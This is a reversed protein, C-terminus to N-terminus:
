EGLMSLTKEVARLIGEPTIGSHKKVTNRWLMELSERLSATEALKKGVFVREILSIAQPPEIFFDGSLMLDKIVGDVVELAVRITKGGLSEERHDAYLIYHGERVKVLRVGPKYRSVIYERGISYGYLWEKSGLRKKIKDLEGKEEESLDSEVLRVGLTKEFCRVLKEKVESRDPVFGLERRLDTVWEKISSVLKARLKEDPVRLVRAAEEANFEMIVNGILVMSGHMLAAGNGSAKKGNVLVDNPPKYEANLGYSRYFEVVAGLIRRFFDEVTGKTLPHGERVIVHYFQQGEDLYVAGGGVQRRIVPFGRARCYEVDVEFEPVQHVGICVYPSSPYTLVITNPSLGKGVYKAIAEYVSQITLGDQAGLDVLRWVEGM